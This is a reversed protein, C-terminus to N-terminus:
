SNGQIAQSRIRAGVTSEIIKERIIEAKDNKTTLIDLKRALLELAKRSSFNEAFFSHAEDRSSFSDLKQLIKPLDLDNNSENDEKLRRRIIKIELSYNEDFLKEFDSDSLNEVARMLRSLTSSLEIKKM